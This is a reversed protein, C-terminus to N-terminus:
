LTPYIINFLVDDLSVLDSELISEGMVQSLEGRVLVRVAMEVNAEEPWFPNRYEEPFGGTEMM